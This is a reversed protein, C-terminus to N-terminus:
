VNGAPLDERDVLQRAYAVWEDILIVCPAYAKLLKKLADGPRTRSQDAQEVLEYGDRGGLQWALEGWMTHVVSGDSKTSTAGPSLHTGVLSARHVQDPLSRGAVLEQLDQPMAGVDIGSFLHWVALM